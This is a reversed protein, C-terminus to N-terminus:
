TRTNDGKGDLAGRVQEGVSHNEVSALVFCELERRRLNKKETIERLRRKTKM